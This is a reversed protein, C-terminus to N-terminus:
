AENVEMMVPLHLDINATMPTRVWGPCVTTTTIGTPRLEVRLADMLANVGAKSACYGAMRPLGRYSALSSLAVLHGSRRRLMGPLVADISNVVGLLNVNLLDNVDEARFNLASTERGLGACAFLLDAPGVEGELRAVAAGVAPLDTVDAAARALPKGKLQAALSDLGEAQRDLAAIRAGQDALSLALQRGLGSAAGTIVAVRGTFHDM